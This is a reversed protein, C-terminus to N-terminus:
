ELIQFRSSAFLAQCAMAWARLDADPEGDATLRQTMDRIFALMESREDVTASASTLLEFMSDVTAETGRPDASDIPEGSGNSAPSALLRRAAAQAADMVLDNNLIFLGQTAVMTQARMGTTTHPDAFDFVEFLEPLDNRIVPLYVSRCSFDTRRRNKNEGVATAQDGLYWVSSEMPTLDLMGAASLMADRLSEPGLRRRRARWLLRNEPDLAHGRANHRSSMTFARSLVVERVLGKISWESGILEHALYDLLAPHSPAEGTIQDAIARLAELDSVDFPLSPVGVIAV